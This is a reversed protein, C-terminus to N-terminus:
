SGWDWDPPGRGLHCGAVAKQTITFSLNDQRISALQTTSTVIWDFEWVTTQTQLLNLNALVAVQSVKLYLTQCEGGCCSLQSQPQL